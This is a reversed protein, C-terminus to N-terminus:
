GSNGRLLGSGFSWGRSCGIMFSVRVSEKARVKTVATVASGVFTFTSFRSGELMGLALVALDSNDFSAVLVM